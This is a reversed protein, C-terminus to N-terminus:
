EPCGAYCWYVGIPVGVEYGPSELESSEVLTVVINSM